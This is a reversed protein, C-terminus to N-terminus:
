GNVRERTMRAPTEVLASMARRQRKLLLFVIHFRVHSSSWYVGRPASLM